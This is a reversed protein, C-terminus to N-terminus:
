WRTTGNWEPLSSGGESGPTTGYGTTGTHPYLGYKSTWLRLVPPLVFLLPVLLFVALAATTTWFALGTAIGYGIIGTLIRSQGFRVVADPLNPDTLQRNRTSHCWLWLLSLGILELNGGYFVLATVDDHFRALLGTSFPLLSIFALFLITLWVLEHSSRRICRFMNHSASWYIGAMGFSVAYAVFSPWLDFLAQRLNTIPKDKPLSINFVVLTMVIAFVGDTLAELRNVGNAVITHRNNEM